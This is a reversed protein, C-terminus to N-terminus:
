FQTLLNYDNIINKSPTELIMPIGLEKIFKVIIKISELGIKGNGINEHRDLKEGLEKRSDNIHCLKVKNIGISKDITGFLINLDTTTRLDYGAAFVHCTDLCIGFKEAMQKNPHTYFKNMFRCLEEIRVLIETGQGSPTEILIKISSNKIKSYVHLLSTYMNNISESDTLDLKKGSHVVIAFAGLESAQNIEVILQQIWWDNASWRKALNISYSAHIVLRIDKTKFFNKITTYKPDSYNITASVFTQVLSLNNFIKDAEVIDDISDIHVGILSM